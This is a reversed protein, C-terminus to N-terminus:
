ANLEEDRSDDAVVDVHQGVASGPQLVAEDEEDAEKPPQPVIWPILWKAGVFLLFSFLVVSQVFRWLAIWWPNIFLNICLIVFSIGFVALLFARRRGGAPNM